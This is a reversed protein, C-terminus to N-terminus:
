WDARRRARPPRCRSRVEGLMELGALRGVQEQGQDDAQELRAAPGRHDQGVAREEAFAHLRPELFVEHLLAVQVGDNPQGVADELGVGADARVQEEELLALRGLVDPEVLM